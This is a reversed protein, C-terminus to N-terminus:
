VGLDGCTSLPLSDLIPVRLLLCPNALVPQAFLQLLFPQSQGRVECTNQSATPTFLVEFLLSYWLLFQLTSSSSVATVIFTPICKKCKNLCNLALFFLEGM